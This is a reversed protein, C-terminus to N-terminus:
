LRGGYFEKVFIDDDDFGLLDNDSGLFNIMLLGSFIM